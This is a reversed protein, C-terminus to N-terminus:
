TLATAHINSLKTEDQENTVKEVNVICVDALPENYYANDVLDSIVIDVVREYM